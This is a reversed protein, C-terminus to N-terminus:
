VQKMGTRPVLVERLQFSFHSVLYSTSLLTGPECPPSIIIIVIVTGTRMASIDEQHKKKRRFLELLSFEVNM